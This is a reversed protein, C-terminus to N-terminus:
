PITLGVLQVKLGCMRLPHSRRQKIKKYKNKSREIWVDTFSTVKEIM